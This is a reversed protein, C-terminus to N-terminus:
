SSWSNLIEITEQNNEMFKSFLYDLIGSYIRCRYGRPKKEIVDNDHAYSV